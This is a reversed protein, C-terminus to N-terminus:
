SHPPNHDNEADLRQLTRHLRIMGGVLAALSLLMLLLPSTGLQGDLWSGALAGVVVLVGLEFVMASARVMGKLVRPDFM